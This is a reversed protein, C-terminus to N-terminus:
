FYLDSPDPDMDRILPDPDSLGLSIHIRRIRFRLVPRHYLLLTTSLNPLPVAPEEAVQLVLEGLRGRLDPKFAALGLVPNMDEVPSFM